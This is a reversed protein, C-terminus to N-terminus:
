VYACYPFNCSQVRFHRCAGACLMESPISGLYQVNNEALLSVVKRSFGCRPEDPTGKMFLMVPAKNILGHLREQLPQEKTIGVAELLSGDEDM